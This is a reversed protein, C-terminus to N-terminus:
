EGARPIWQGQFLRDSIDELYGQFWKGGPALVKPPGPQFGRHDLFEAYGKVFTTGSRYHHGWWGGRDPKVRRHWQMIGSVTTILTNRDDIPMKGIDPGNGATFLPVLAATANEHKDEQVEVKRLSKLLGPEKTMVMMLLSSQTRPNFILTPLDRPLGSKDEPWYGPTLLNSLLRLGEEVSRETWRRRLMAIGVKHKELFAPSIPNSAAFSGDLLQAIYRKAKRYTKSAPDRHRQVNPLDNWIELWRCPRPQARKPGPKTKPRLVRGVTIKPPVEQSSTKDTPESSGCPERCSEKSDVENKIDIKKNIIREIPPGLDKSDFSRPPGGLGEVKMAVYESLADPDVRFWNKAPLGVREVELIGLAQFDKIFQTHKAASITTTYEVWSQLLYFWHDENEM